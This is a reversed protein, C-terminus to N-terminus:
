KVQHSSERPESQYNNYGRTPAAINMVQSEEVGISPWMHQSPSFDFNPNHTPTLINEMQDEVLENIPHRRPFNEAADLGFLEMPLLPSPSQDDVLQEEDTQENTEAFPLEMDQIQEFVRNRDTGMRAAQSFPSLPDNPPLGTQVMNNAFVEAWQSVHRTMSNMYIDVALDLQDSNMEGCFGLLDKAEIDDSDEMEEIRQSISKSPLRYWDQGNHSM